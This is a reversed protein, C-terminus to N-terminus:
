QVKVRNGIAQNQVPAFRLEASGIKVTSNQIKFKSNQVKFKIKSKANQM